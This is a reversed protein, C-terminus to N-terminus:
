KRLKAQWNWEEVKKGKVKVADKYERSTELEQVAQKTYEKAQKAFKRTTIQVIGNVLRVLKNRKAGKKKKGGFLSSFGVFVVLATLCAAVISLVAENGTYQDSYSCLDAQLGLGFDTQTLVVTLLALM